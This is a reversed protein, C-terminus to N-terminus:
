WKNKKYDRGTRITPMYGGYKYTEFEDSYYQTLCYDDADSIHGWKQCRVGTAEDKYMEKFKTGDSDEKVNIYEGNSRKCGEDFDITIGEFNTALCTNIFQGRLKVPPYARPVRIEPKFRALSIAIKNFESYDAEHVRVTTDDATSEKLGGPDGYIFLGANHAMFLREFEECVAMDTNYPHALLIEHIKGIWKGEGQWINCTLYPNVNFDWAMHLAIRPNYPFRFNPQDFGTRQERIKKVHKSTNYCKYFEGGSMKRGWLGLTFVKYYYPNTEKLMEHIVRRQPTVYPNDKYVSHTAKYNLRIEDNENVKLVYVGDFSYIGKEYNEKFFNKYLWFDEYDTEEDDPEPNFSVDVTVDGKNSRLTTIITIWDTESLQNGEEIWVGSPNQISKIKKTEDCGRAIFKNGNVCDIELPSTKFTFLHSLGWDEVVDKINQWQSDKISNFTKKILIERFYPMNLCDMVKKMAIHMSKGSDRGGWFFKIATKDDLLPRFRPLFLEEDIELEIVPM